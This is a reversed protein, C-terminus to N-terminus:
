GEKVYLSMEETYIIYRREHERWINIGVLVGTAFLFVLSLVCGVINKAMYDIMNIGSYWFGMQMGLICFLVIWISLKLVYKRPGQERKLSWNKIFREKKM